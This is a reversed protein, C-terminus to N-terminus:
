RVAGSTLGGVLWRQLFVAAAFVPIVGIVSAAAIKGVHPTREGYFLSLVVPLTRADPSQTLFTALLFENYNLVGAIIGVAVLAPAVLPAVVSVLVRVSGAGDIRAAEEIEIPLKRLFGELLWIAVPVNVLAYVLTLGWLTNNAGLLRLLTFLPVVAVIPPLLWPSMITGALTAGGTRFRVMAWAGPLAILLSVVAGGIAAILSNAIGRLLDSQTLVETWNSFQPVAPILVGQGTENRGMLSVSVLYLLPVVFFLVLAALVVTSLISRRSARPRRSVLLDSM